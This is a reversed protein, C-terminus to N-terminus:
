ENSSFFLAVFDDKVDPKKSIFSKLKKNDETLKDVKATLEKIKADKDWGQRMYYDKDHKAQQADEILDRYEDTGITVTGVVSCKSTNEESM